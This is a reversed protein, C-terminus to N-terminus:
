GLLITATKGLRIVSRSPRQAEKGPHPDDCFDNRNRQVLAPITLHSRVPLTVLPSIFEFPMKRRRSRILRSLPTQHIGQCCSAIFSATRQSLGHPAAFPSQDMSKRIPSGLQCDKITLQKKTNKRSCFRVRFPERPVGTLRPGTPANRLLSL